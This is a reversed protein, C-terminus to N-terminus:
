IVAWNNAGNNVLDVSQYQVNILFTAAGDITQGGTCAITVVGTGTRKITYRNSNGVATPLTATLTASCMYVYDTLAAAALTTNASIASIIRTIGSVSISGASMSVYVGDAPNRFYTTAM